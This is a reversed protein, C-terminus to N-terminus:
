SIDNELVWNMSCNSWSDKSSYRDIVINMTYTQFPVSKSYVLMRYYRNEKICFFDQGM